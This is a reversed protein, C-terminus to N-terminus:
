PGGGAAERLSEPTERSDPPVLVSPPIRCSLLLSASYHSPQVPSVSPHPHSYPTSCYSCPPSQAKSMRLGQWSPDGVGWHGCHHCGHPRSMEGEKGRRERVGEREGEGERGWLRWDREKKDVQCLVTLCGKFGFGSLVMFRELKFGLPSNRNSKSRTRVQDRARSWPGAQWEM